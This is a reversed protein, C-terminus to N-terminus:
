PDLINPWEFMTALEKSDLKKNSRVLTDMNSYMQEMDVSAKQLNDM